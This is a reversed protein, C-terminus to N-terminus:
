CGGSPYLRLLAQEIEARTSIFVAIYCGTMEEVECRLKEDLPNQMVVSLVNGIKDLPVLRNRHAVESPILALVDPTIMYKSISIYPLNCQVLLATVIDIEQAYGLGVLIDGLYGGGQTKQVALAEQLHADTILGREVLVEGILRRDHCHHAM